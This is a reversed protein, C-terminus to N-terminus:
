GRAENTEQFEWWLPTSSSVVVTKRLEDHRVYKENIRKLEHSLIFM